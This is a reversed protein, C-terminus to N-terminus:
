FSSATRHQFCCFSKLTKEKQSFSLYTYTATFPTYPVTGAQSFSVEMWMHHWTVPQSGQGHPQAEQALELLIECKQINLKKISISADESLCASARLEQLCKQFIWSQPEKLHKHKKQTLCLLDSLQLIACIKTDGNCISLWCGKGLKVLNKKRSSFCIKQCFNASVWIFEM